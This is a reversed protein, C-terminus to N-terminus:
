SVTRKVISVKLCVEYKQVLKSIALNSFFRVSQIARERPRWINALLLNHEVITMVFEFDQQLEKYSSSTVGNMCKKFLKNM